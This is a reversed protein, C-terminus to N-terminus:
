SQTITSIQNRKEIMITKSFMTKAESGHDIVIISRERSLKDLLDIVIEKGASDLGDFPEDLIIPNISIGFNKQLIEILVFDICLSLARLEGGSLSGISVEKGSMILSESFKAVVDGKSTEKYSNLMYSATPWVLEIYKEIAENFSDIISDLVYAPAGTPSYVASLVKFFDLEKIKQDNKIQCTSRISTLANIKNIFELNNELKIANNEFQNRKKNLLIKTSLLMEQAHSYTYLEKNKIEQLKNKLNYIENEKYIVVDQEDIQSKLVALQQGIRAQHTEHHAKAESIDLASGCESCTSNANFESREAALKRYQNHLVSRTAKAAAIEKEKTLFQNELKSYNSTDPKEISEFKAMQTTLSVIDLNLQEQSTLLEQQDVLSEQYAEIKSTATKIKVDLENLESLISKSQDDAMKKLEQFKDLDLLKLLFNKKDSDNLSIFRNSTGQSCYIAVIYQEYSIKLLKEFEEQSIDIKLGNKTFIVGKPRTRTVEYIDDNIKVTVRALGTKSGRRVIESATIKRPVKDFLAFSLANFISSKGAGNSRESDYNWGEVLVLGTEDFSIQAKEISLINQIELHQIKM